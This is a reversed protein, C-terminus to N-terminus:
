QHNESPGENQGSQSIRFASRHVALHRRDTLKQNHAARQKEEGEKGGAAAIM